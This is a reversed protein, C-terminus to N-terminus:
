GARSLPGESCFPLREGIAEAAGIDARESIGAILANMMSGNKFYELLYSHPHKNMAGAGM